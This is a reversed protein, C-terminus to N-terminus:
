KLGFANKKLPGVLEEVIEYIWQGKDNQYARYWERPGGAKM